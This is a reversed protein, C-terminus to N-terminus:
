SGTGLELHREVEEFTLNIIEEATQSRARLDALLQPDVAGTDWSAAMWAAKAEASMATLMGFIARTINSAKWAEFEERDIM